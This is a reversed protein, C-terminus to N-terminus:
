SVETLLIYNLLSVLSINVQLFDVSSKGIITGCLMHGGRRNPNILALDLHLPSGNNNPVKSTLQFICNGMLM